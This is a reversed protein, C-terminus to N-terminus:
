AQIRDASRLRAECGRKAIAKEDEEMELQWLHCAEWLDVIGVRGENIYREFTAQTWERRRRGM